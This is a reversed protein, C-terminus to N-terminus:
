RSGGAARASCRSGTPSSARCRFVRSWGCCRPPPTRRPWRGGADLLFAERNRRWDGTVLSDAATTGPPPEPVEQLTGLLQFGSPLTAPRSRTRLTRLVRGEDDVIRARAEVLTGEALARDVINGIELWDVPHFRARAASLTLSVPEAPLGVLRAAEADYQVSGSVSDWQWVGTGIAALVDETRM